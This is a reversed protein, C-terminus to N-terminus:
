AHCVSSQASRETQKEHQKELQNIVRTLRSKWTLVDRLEPHLRHRSNRHMLEARTVCALNEIALNAPNRDLFIVIHGAPIPGHHREWILQYLPRFNRYGPNQGDTIKEYWIGDGRKERSGIPRWTHPRNGPQFRTREAGPPQYGKLGKNWPPRDSGFRGVAQNVRTVKEIYTDSKRLGLRHARTVVGRLSRGLQQALDATPQDPFLARLMADEDTTWPRRTM